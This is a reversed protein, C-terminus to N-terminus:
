RCRDPDAWSALDDALSGRVRLGRDGLRDLLEFPSTVQPRDGLTRVADVGTLGDQLRAVGALFRPDDIDGDVVVYTQEGVDGGFLLDTRDITATM